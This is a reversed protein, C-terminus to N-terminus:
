PQRFTLILCDRMHRYSSLAFHSDKAEWVAQLFAHHRCGCQSQVGLQLGVRALRQAHDFAQPQAMAALLTNPSHHTIQGPRALAKRTKM